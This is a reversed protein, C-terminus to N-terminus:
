RRKRRPARIAKLAAGRDICEAASNTDGDHVSRLAKLAARDMARQERGADLACSQILRILRVKALQDLKRLLVALDEHDQRTM